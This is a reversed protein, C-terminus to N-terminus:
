VANGIGELPQYFVGLLHRVEVEVAARPRTLVAARQDDGVIILAVLHAKRQVVDVFLQGGAAEDLEHRVIVVIIEVILVIAHGVAAPEVLVAGQM